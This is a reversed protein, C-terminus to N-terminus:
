LNLKLSAFYSLGQAVPMFSNPASHVGGGLSAQINTVNFLNKAGLTFIIKSKLFRASVTADCLHYGAISTQVVRETNNENVIIFGPIEGNYKYFLSFIFSVKSFAQQFTPTIRFEYSNLYHPVTKDTQVLRNYRATQNFGLECGIKKSDIKASLNYGYASYKSLNVYQYLQSPMDVVALEILNTVHNYFPAVEASFTIKNITKQYILSANFNNGKEAQLQANGRINHNVDVFLFFLEKLSPARFGQAWSARLQWYPAFVYKLNFSSVIPAGYRTNYALRLAPRLVLKKIPAYELSGFCAFDYIHRLNNEIRLGSASELNIDYGLQYNIKKEAGSNTFTGRFLFADFADIANDGPNESLATELTVMNKLWTQRERRFWNYNNLLNLTLNRNIHYSLDIGGGLRRTIFNEDKARAFRTTVIPEGLNFLKEEFLQFFTRIKWKNKQYIGDLSGFYQERPKWQNARQTRRVGPTFGQMFNRGATVNFSCNQRRMSFGLDFNYKGISEIYSNAIVNWDRNAGKKTILNIIGGMADSGYIVSMPGEIIEIKEINNLNIQSLDINGNLRGIIPVGDILIKINQGSLGQMTLSSGLINDQQLRVNLEYALIDSLNVAGQALIRERHILKVKYTAAEQSAVQYQGTVVVDSLEVFKGQLIVNVTDANSFDLTDVKPEFGMYEVKIFWKKKYPLRIMGQADTFFSINGTKSAEELSACLIFAGELPIPDVTKDMEEPAAMVKIFQARALRPCLMVFAALVLFLHITKRM